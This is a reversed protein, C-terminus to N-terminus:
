AASREAEELDALWAPDITEFADVVQPDFQRGRLVLSFRTTTTTRSRDDRRAAPAPRAQLETQV